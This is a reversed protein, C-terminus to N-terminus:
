INKTTNKVFERKRQKSEETVNLKDLYARKITQEVIAILRSISAENGNQCNGTEFTKSKDKKNLYVTVGQKM